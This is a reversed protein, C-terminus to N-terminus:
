AKDKSKDAKPKTAPSDDVYVAHGKAVEREAIADKAEAIYGNPYKIRKM